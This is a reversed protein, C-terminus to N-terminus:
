CKGFSFSLVRAFSEGCQNSVVGVVIASTEPKGPFEEHVKERLQAVCGEASLKFSIGCTLSPHKVMFDVQEEGRDTEAM